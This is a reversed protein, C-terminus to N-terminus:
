EGQQAPANTGMIIDDPHPIPTPDFLDEDKIPTGCGGTVVAAIVLLVFIVLGTAGVTNVYRM